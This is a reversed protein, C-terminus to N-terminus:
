LFLLLIPYLGKLRRRLEIKAQNKASKVTNISLGLRRAIEDNTMGDVFAMRFITSRQRPLSEIARLIQDYIDARAIEAFLEQPLPEDSLPVHRAAAGAYDMCENHVARFLYRRVHLESQWQAPAELMRAFVAQVTEEAQATSGLIRLAFYCLSRRSKEFLAGLDNHAIKTM